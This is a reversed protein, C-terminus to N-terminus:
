RPIGRGNDTPGGVPVASRGGSALIRGGWSAPGRHFGDVRREIAKGREVDAIVERGTAASHCDVIWWRDAADRVGRKGPSLWCGSAVHEYGRRLSGMSGYSRPGLLLGVCKPWGDGSQVFLRAKM